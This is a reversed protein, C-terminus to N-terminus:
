RTAEWYPVFDQRIQEIVKAKVVLTDAKAPEKESYLELRVAGCEPRLAGADFVYLGEYISDTESVPRELKFPHIPMVPATGCFATLRLFGSKFHKMPPLSVGQTQAAGRAVTTWFSEVRKPTVRVLLVPPFAAVYDSWNGFDLLSRLFPQDPGSGRRQRVQDQQFQAGYVMVPTIFAVDFDSSSLQYPNLSGARGAAATKLADVPFPKSPEVPLRESAAPGKLRAETTAIVECLGDVRAVRTLARTVENDEPVPSTLGIVIGGATFAPGGARGPLLDLDTVLTRPEVHSVLGSSLGKPERMPASITFIEQDASVVPWAATSCGLPVPKVAAILAPEIRLLAVGRAPDAAVVTAAVKLEPGLQVEVSAAGGVVRQSTAILGRADIVFGSAHTTPTWLAVVSDRWQMLLSSPDAEPADAAAGPALAEVQANKATLVLVNADGARVNLTEVWQYAKGAFAAPRDSEVTYNGPRLTLEATGDIGTVIRRPPASTPNDSVLLAHRPVPTEKGDADILVVKIHLVAGTQAAAPLPLTLACMALVLTRLM